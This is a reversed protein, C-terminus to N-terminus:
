RGPDPRRGPPAGELYRKLGNWTRREMRAGLPGLLPGLLRLWGRPRVQWDWALVTGDGDATLTLAGDTAMLSSSTRSGVRLPQVVDTLEVLMETGARGMLARFRAGTAIPPTTLLEAHTMAPNYRPENRTDVVVDFVTEPPVDIRIRGAIRVM